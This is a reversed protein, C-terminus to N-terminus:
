EHLQTYAQMRAREIMGQWTNDYIILINKKERGRVWAEAKLDTDGYFVRSNWDKVQNRHGRKKNIVRSM